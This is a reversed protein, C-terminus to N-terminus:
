NDEDQSIPHTHPTNCQEQTAPHHAQRTASVQLSRALRATCRAHCKRPEQLLLIPENGVNRTGREESEESRKRTKSPASPPRDSALVPVSSSFHPRLMCEVNMIKESELNRAIALSGCKSARYPVVQLAESTRPSCTRHPHARETEESRTLTPLPGAEIYRHRM